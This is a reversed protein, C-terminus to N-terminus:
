PQILDHSIPQSRDILFGSWSGVLGAFIMAEILRTIYVTFAPNNNIRWFNHVSLAFFLYPLSILIVSTIGFTAGLLILSCRNWNSGQSLKELFKGGLYGPIISLVCSICFVFIMYSIKSQLVETMSDTENTGFAIGEVVAFLLSGIFASRIGIFSGKHKKSRILKMYNRQLVDGGITLKIGETLYM